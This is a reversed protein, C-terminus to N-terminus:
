PESGIHKEFSLEIGSRILRLISDLETPPIRLRTSLQELTRATLEMRTDDLWRSVTQRHVSYVTAIQAHDLGQAFAFRLLSRQRESLSGLATVLAARFEARYLSKLHLLEPGDRPDAISAVVEEDLQENSSVRSANLAT